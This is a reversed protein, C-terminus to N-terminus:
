SIYIESVYIVESVHHRLRKGFDILEKAIYAIKENTERFYEEMRRVYEEYEESASM